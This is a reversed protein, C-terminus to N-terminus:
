TFKKRIIPEIEDPVLGKISGKFHSIERILSSSIQAHDASAMLFVTEIGGLQLNAANMQLEFEFDSFSRLGRILFSAGKEKAFDVILGPCLAVEVGPAIKKMMDVKEEPSFISEKQLNTSIAVILHDCIKLAKKLIYLHGMTPPDFTGTYIGIRM